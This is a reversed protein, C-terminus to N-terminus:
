NKKFFGPYLNTRNKNTEPRKHEQLNNESALTRNTFNENKEIDSIKLQNEFLGM